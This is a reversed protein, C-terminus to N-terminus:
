VSRILPCSPRIQDWDIADQWNDGPDMWNDGADLRDNAGPGQHVQVAARYDLDSHAAPTALSPPSARLPLAFVLINM